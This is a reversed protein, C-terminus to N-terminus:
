RLGLAQYLAKTNGSNYRYQLDLPVAADAKAKAEEYPLGSDRYLKIIKEHQALLALKNQESPNAGTWNTDRTNFDVVKRTFDKSSSDAAEAALEKRKAIIAANASAQDGGSAIAATSDAQESPSLNALAPTELAMARKKHAATIDEAQLQELAAQAKYHNAMADRGATGSNWQLMADDHATTDRGKQYDLMKQMANAQVTQDSRRFDLDQTHMREQSQLGQANSQLNANYMDRQNGIDAMHGAYDWAKGNMSQLANLAYENRRQSFDRNGEDINDWGDAVWGGEPNFVTRMVSPM